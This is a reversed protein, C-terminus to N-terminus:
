LNFFKFLTFTPVIEEQFTVCNRSHTVNNVYVFPFVIIFLAARNTLPILM